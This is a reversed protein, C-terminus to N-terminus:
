GAGVRRGDDEGSREVQGLLIRARAAALEGTQDHAVAGATPLLSVRLEAAFRGALTEDNESQVKAPVPVAFARGVPRELVIDSHGGAEEPLV